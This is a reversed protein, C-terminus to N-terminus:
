TGSTISRFTFDNSAFVIRGAVTLLGKGVVPRDPFLQATFEQNSNLNTPMRFWFVVSDVTPVITQVPIRRIRNDDTGFGVIVTDYIVGSHRGDFHIHLTDTENGTLAYPPTRGTGFVNFGQSWDTLTWSIVSDQPCSTNTYPI